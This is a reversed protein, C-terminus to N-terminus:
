CGIITTEVLYHMFLLFETPLLCCCCCCCPFFQLTSPPHYNMQKFGPSLSLPLHVTSFQTKPDPVRSSHVPFALPYKTSPATPPNTPWCLSFVAVDLMFFAYFSSLIFDYLLFQQSFRLCSRLVYDPSGHFPLFSLCVCM